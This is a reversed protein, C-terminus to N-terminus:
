RKRVVQPDLKAILQKADYIEGESAAPSDEFIKVQALYGPLPSEAAPPYPAESIGLVVFYACEKEITLEACRYLMYNKTVALTTKNNGRFEVLYQDEGVKDERYGEGNKFLQYPTPKISACGPASLCIAAFLLLFFFIRLRCLRLKQLNSMRGGQMMVVVM